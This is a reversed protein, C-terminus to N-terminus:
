AFVDAHKLLFSYFLDRECESLSSEVLQWLLQRKDNDVPPDIGVNVMATLEVPQLYAVVVGAYLTLPEDSVNPICVPM